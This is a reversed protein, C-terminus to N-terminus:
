KQITALIARAAAIRLSEFPEDLVQVLFPLADTSGISGIAHLIHEKMARAAKPYHQLLVELAEQDQFYLALIFAAQSSIAPTPDFLLYRLAEPTELGEQIM